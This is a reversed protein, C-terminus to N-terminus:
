DRRRTPRNRCCHAARLFGHFDPAPAHWTALLSELESATQFHVMMALLARLICHKDAGACYSDIVHLHLNCSVLVHPPFGM